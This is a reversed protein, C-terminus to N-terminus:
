TVSTFVITYDTYLVYWIMLVMCPYVKIVVLYHIDTVAIFFFMLLFCAVCFVHMHACLSTVLTFGLTKRTTSKGRFERFGLYVRFIANQFFFPFFSM